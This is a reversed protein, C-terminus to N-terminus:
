SVAGAKLRLPGQIRSEQNTSWSQRDAIGGNVVPRAKWPWRGLGEGTVNMIRFYMRSYLPSLLTGTIPQQPKQLGELAQALLALAQLSVSAKCSPCGSWREGRVVKIRVKNEVCGQAYRM